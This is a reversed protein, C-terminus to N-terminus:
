VNKINEWINPFLLGLQSEYNESPYTLWWGTHDLYQQHFFFGLLHGMIKWHDEWSMSLDRM